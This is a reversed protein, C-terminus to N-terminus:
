VHQMLVPIRATRLLYETTGGFVKERWRSRSYAGAILVDGGAAKYAELLEVEVRRGRTEVRESKVGWHALYAALQTSKPGARDENGCSVITVKDAGAVVPMAASVTRAVEAGQNWGIVVSKGISRRVSAPLVLVPRSSELMAANLFMDAVGGTRAPRSVVILDSVPGHIGMLVDPSGVKESWLAGPEKRARRIVDYGHEEALREYLSKAAAPANKTNKRRWAADAFASSLSVDSYRHPRMHCGSVSAGIRKGLDFAVNLARACEPRDAVPVLIVRM